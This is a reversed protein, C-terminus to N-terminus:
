LYGYGAPGVWFSHQTDVGCLSCPIDIRESAPPELNLSFAHSSCHQDCSCHSVDPSQSVHVPCPLGVKPPPAHQGGYRIFNIFSARSVIGTHEPDLEAMIHRM